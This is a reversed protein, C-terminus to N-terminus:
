SRQSGASEDLVVDRHSLQVPRGLGAFWAALREALFVSRHRGGTCGAAITLYSKGEAEFRPLLPEILATLAGFFGAFAPDSEIYTAVDPARGDLPRLEAEYHPNRLFRVDFVLDAERPVGYRYSFSTLFVTMGPGHELGLQGALQRRLEGPALTSTDSVLDARARLPAVLRREAAIGDAIRRDQALPHRRRTETFRRELVRDECDLFLLTIALDDRGALRDLHDLLPRAAFNRTRIDVGIAVAPLTEDEALAADLLRLPLNDIAEYGMDELAKLTTSRGAGSLGTVLVVRRREAAAGKHAPQRAAAPAQERGPGPGAAARADLAVRPVALGGIVESEEDPLREVAEPAVLDVLLAVPAEALIPVGVIGLGRVEMEGAIAAPARAMLRGGAPGDRRHLECQDDAVLRAGQDIMRLALDSKGAGSPGRLLVGRPGGPGDLAICTAHVRRAAVDTM